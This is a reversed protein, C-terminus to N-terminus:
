KPRPHTAESHIENRPLVRESRAKIHGNFVFLEIICNMGETSQKDGCSVLLNTQHVWLTFREGKRDCTPVHPSLTTFIYNRDISILGVM